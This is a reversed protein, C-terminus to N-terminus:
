HRRGHIEEDIKELDSAQAIRGVLWDIACALSVAVGGCIVVAWLLLVEEELGKILWYVSIPAILMIVGLCYSPIRPLDRGLALRWPFWHEALLGLFTIAIVAIM